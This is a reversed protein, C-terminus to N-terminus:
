LAYLWKGINHPDRFISVTQAFAMLHIWSAQNITLVQIHTLKRDRTEFVLVKLKGGKLVIGHKM